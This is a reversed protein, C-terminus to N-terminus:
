WRERRAARLRPESAPGRPVHPGEESADFFRYTFAARTWTAGGDLALGLEVDDARARRPALVCLASAFALALPRVRGGRIV